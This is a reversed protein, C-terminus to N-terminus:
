ETLEAHAGGQHTCKLPDKCGATAGKDSRAGETNQSGPNQAEQSKQDGPASPPMKANEQLPAETQKPQEQTNQAPQASRPIEKQIEHDIEQMLEEM